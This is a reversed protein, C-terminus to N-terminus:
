VVRLETSPLGTRAPSGESYLLPASSLLRCRGLWWYRKNASASTSVVVLRYVQELCSLALPLAIGGGRSARIFVSYESVDACIGLTLLLSEGAGYADFHLHIDGIVARPM